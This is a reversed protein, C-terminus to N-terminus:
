LLWRPTTVSVWKPSSYTRTDTQTGLRGFSSQIRDRHFSRIDALSKPGLQNYSPQYPVSNRLTEYLRISEDKPGQVVSRMIATGYTINSECDSYKGDTKLHHNTPYPTILGTNNQDGWYRLPDVFPVRLSLPLTRLTLLVARRTLPLRGYCANALEIRQQVYTSMQSRRRGDKSNVFFRSLFNPTVDYGNLYFGGCSERFNNAGKHIFSKEKNITFGNQTLRDIVTDAYKSEIVIDDGYVRYMSNGPNDGCETIAAECVAAFVLCEVPFCLASGMSAYKNLQWTEGTPLKTKYSRTALLPLRLSTNHFWSKVLSLSVSDSAASLDITAISGDISGLYADRKNLEARELNIRRRLYPHWKIYRAIAKLWGQQHYMLTTPEMCISRVKTATKPVFALRSTREFSKTDVEIPKVLASGPDRRRDNRIFCGIQLEMHRILNDSGM